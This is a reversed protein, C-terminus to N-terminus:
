NAPLTCNELYAALMNKLEGAAMEDQFGGERMLKQRIRGVTVHRPFVEAGFYELIDQLHALGTQNGTEGAAIGVLAATKGKFSGPYDCADIFLKLIGPISGNYEPAVFIFHSGRHVVDQYPQFGSSAISDLYDFAISRPLLELDLLAAEHGQEKLYAQCLKAVRLSLNDPRNTGSVIVFQMNGQGALRKRQKLTGFISLKSPELDILFHDELVVAM